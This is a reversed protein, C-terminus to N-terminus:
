KQQLSLREPKHEGKGEGRWIADRMPHPLPAWPWSILASVCWKHV